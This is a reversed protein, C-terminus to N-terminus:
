AAVLTAETAIDGTALIYYSQRSDRFSPREIVRGEDLLRTLAYRVTRAPIPASEVLAKHTLPGRAALIGLVTVASPPLAMASGASGPPMLLKKLHISEVDIMGLFSGEGPSSGEGWANARIRSPM